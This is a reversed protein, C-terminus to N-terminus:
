RISELFVAVDMAESESLGASPMANGPVFRQPDFIWAALNQPSNRLVGAIFIRRGLMTLPPGVMGDAGSVGPIIHCGGCGKTLM